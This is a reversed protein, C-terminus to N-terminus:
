KEYQSKRGPYFTIIIILGKEKKFIVRLIHTKDLNSQAILLPSRNYDMVGSKVTAIVKRRSISVGHRALVEFKEEAHKTFYINM